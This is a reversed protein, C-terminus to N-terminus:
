RRLTALVCCSRSMPLALLWRDVCFFVLYRLSIERNTAYTAPYLPLSTNGRDLRNSENLLLWRIVCSANANWTSQSFNDM